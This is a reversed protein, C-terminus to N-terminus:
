RLMGEWDSLQDCVGNRLGHAVSIPGPTDTDLCLRLLWDINHLAAPPLQAWLYWAVPGERGSTLPVLSDVELVFFHVVTGHDTTLTVRHRWDGASSAVGAEEHAERAMAAAPPEGSEVKGGVGNLRGRQWEPDRKEILAVSGGRVVFGCVYETM